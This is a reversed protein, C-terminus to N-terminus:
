QPRTDWVQCATDGLGTVRSYFGRQCGVIRLTISFELHRQSQGSPERVLMKGELGTKLKMSLQVQTGECVRLGPTVGEGSELCSENIM